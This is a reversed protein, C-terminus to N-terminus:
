PCTLGIWVRWVFSLVISVEYPAAYRVAGEFAKLFEKAVPVLKDNWMKRDLWVLSQPKVLSCIKVLHAKSCTLDTRVSDTIIKSLAGPEAGKFFAIRREDTQLFLLRCNWCELQHKFGSDRELLPMLSQQLNLCWMRKRCFSIARANWLFGNTGDYIRALVACLSVTLCRSFFMCRRSWSMPDNRVECACVCCQPFGCMLTRRIIGFLHFKQSKLVFDGSEIAPAVALPAPLNGILLFVSENGFRLFHQGASVLEELVADVSVLAKCIRAYPAASFKERLVIDGGGHCRHDTSEVVESVAEFIDRGFFSVVVLIADGELAM